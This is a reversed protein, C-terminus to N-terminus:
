NTCYGTYREIVDRGLYPRIGLTDGQCYYRIPDVLVVHATDYDAVNSYRRYTAPLVVSRGGLEGGTLKQGKKLVTVPLYVGGHGANRANARTLATTDGSPTTWDYGVNPGSVLDPASRYYPESEADKMARLNLQTAAVAAREAQSSMCAEKTASGLNYARCFPDYVINAFGFEEVSRRSEKNHKWNKNYEADSIRFVLVIQGLSGGLWKAGPRVMIIMRHDTYTTRFDGTAVYVDYRDNATPHHWDHALDGNTVDTGQKAEASSAHKLHAFMPAEAATPTYLPKSDDQSLYIGIGAALALVITCVIAILGLRNRVVRLKM